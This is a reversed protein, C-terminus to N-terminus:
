NASELAQDRMEGLFQILDQAGSESLNTDDAQVRVIGTTSAIELEYVFCDACVSRLRETEPLTSPGLLRNLERVAAESLPRSVVRRTRGDEATMHGDSSVRIELHAGAFGGTQTLKISWTGASTPAPPPFTRTPACAAVGLLSLILFPMVRKM